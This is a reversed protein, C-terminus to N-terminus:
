NVGGLVVYHYYAADEARIHRDLATGVEDLQLRSRTLKDALENLKADADRAAPGAWDRMQALAQRLAERGRDAEQRATALYDLLQGQVPTTPYCPTLDM